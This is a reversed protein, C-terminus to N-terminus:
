EGVARLRACEARERDSGSRDDVDAAALREARYRRLDALRTLTGGGIAALLRNHVAEGAQVRLSIAQKTRGTVRGIEPLSYRTGPNRNALWIGHNIADRLSEILQQEHVLAAPDDGIREGFARHMRMLAGALDSTETARRRPRAPPKPAAHKGTM